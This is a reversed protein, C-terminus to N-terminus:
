FVTKKEPDQSKEKIKAFIEEIVQKKARILPGVKEAPAGTM